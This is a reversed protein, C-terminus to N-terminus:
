PSVLDFSSDASYDVSQALKGFRTRSNQGQFKAQPVGAHKGLKQRKDM